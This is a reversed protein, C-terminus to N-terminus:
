PPGGQDRRAAEQLARMIADFNKGVEAMHRLQTDKEAIQADKVRSEARWEDRDHIAEDYQRKIFLRGTGLALAFLVVLGIAGIGNGLAEIPLGEIV